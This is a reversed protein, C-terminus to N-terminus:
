GSSRTNDSAVWTYGSEERAAAATASAAAAAVTTVRMSIPVHLNGILTSSAKRHCEGQMNHEQELVVATAELHRRSMVVLSVLHTFPRRGM